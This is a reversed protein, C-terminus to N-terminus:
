PTFGPNTPTIVKFIFSLAVYSGIVVISGILAWVVTDRGKKVQEPNGASIVWYIAGVLFMMLAVAGSLPLVTTIFRGVLTAIDPGEGGCGGGIPNCIKKAYDEVALAARPGLIFLSCYVFLLSCFTTLTSASKKLKMILYYYVFIKETINPAYKQTCETYFAERM